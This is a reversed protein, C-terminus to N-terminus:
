LCDVTLVNGLTSVHADAHRAVADALEAAFASADAGGDGARFELRVYSM